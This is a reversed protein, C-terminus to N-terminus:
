CPAADQRRANNIFLIWSNQHWVFTDSGCPCCLREGGYNQFRPLALIYNGGGLFFFWIYALNILQNCVTKCLLLDRSFFGFHVFVTPPWPKWGSGIPSSVTNGWAGKSTPVAGGSYGVGAWGKWSWTRRTSKTTVGSTGRKLVQSSSTSTTSVNYLKANWRHEPAIWAALRRGSWNWSPLEYRGRHRKWLQVTHCRHILV